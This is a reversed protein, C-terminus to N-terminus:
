HIAYKSRIFRKDTRFIINHKIKSCNSSTYRNEMRDAIWIKGGAFLTFIIDVFTMFNSNDIKFNFKKKAFLFNDSVYVINAGKEIATLDPYLNTELLIHVINKDSHSDLDINITSHLPNLNSPLNSFTVWKDLVLHQKPLISVGRLM